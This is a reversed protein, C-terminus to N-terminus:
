WGTLWNQKLYVTVCRDFNDFLRLWWPPSCIRARASPSQRTMGASAIWGEARGCILSFGRQDAARVKRRYLHGISITLITLVTRYFTGVSCKM